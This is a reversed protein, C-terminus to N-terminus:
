RKIASVLILECYAEITLGKGAAAAALHARDRPAMPVVVEPARGNHGLDALDWLSWMRRITAADTDGMREAIACSSNGRGTLFGIVGARANTWREVFAVGGRQRDTGPIAIKPLTIDDSLSM